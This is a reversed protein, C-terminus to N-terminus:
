EELWYSSINSLPVRIDRKLKLGSINVIEPYHAVSTLHVKELFSIEQGKEIMIPNNFKITVFM